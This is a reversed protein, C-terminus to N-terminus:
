GKSEEAIFDLLSQLFQGNLRRGVSYQRSHENLMVYQGLQIGIVYPQGAISVLLPSGSIGPRSRCDHFILSPEVIQDPAPTIECPDGAVAARLMSIEGHGADDLAAARLRTTTAALRSRTRIIAWDQSFDGLENAAPASTVIRTIRGFSLREGRVHCNREVDGAMVAHRTALLIDYRGAFGPLDLVVARSLYLRGTAENECLLQVVGTRSNRYTEDSLADLGIEDSARAGASFLALALLLPIRLTSM